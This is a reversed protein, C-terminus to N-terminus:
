QKVFRYNSIETQKKVQVYYFGSKLDSVDISLRNTGGHFEKTLVTMGTQNIITVAAESTIDNSLINLRDTVPNPCIIGKNEPFAEPTSNVVDSITIWNLNFKGEDTYVRLKHKGQSLALPMMLTSWNQWGGSSPIQLTDLATGNERVELSTKASSAIRFYFYYEMSEPVNINYELWDGADIWGVDATGDVDKV